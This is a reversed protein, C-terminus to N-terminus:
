QWGGSSCVSIYTFTSRYTYVDTHIYTQLHIYICICKYRHMYILTDTTKWNMEWPTQISEKVARRWNIFISIHRYM